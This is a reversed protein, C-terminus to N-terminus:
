KEKLIYSICQVMYKVSLQSQNFLPNVLLKPVHVLLHSDHNGSLSFVLFPPTYMYNGMEQFILHKEKSFDLVMM